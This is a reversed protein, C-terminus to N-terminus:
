EQKLQNTVKGVLETGDPRTAVVFVTAVILSAVLGWVPDVEEAGGSLIKEEIVRESFHGVRFQTFIHQYRAELDASNEEDLGYCSVAALGDVVATAIEGDAQSTGFLNEALDGDDVPDDVSEDDPTEVAGEVGDFMATFEEPMDVLEDPLEEGETEPPTDVSEDVPSEEGDFLNFEPEPEPSEEDTPEPTVSEFDEGDDEDDPTRATPVAM